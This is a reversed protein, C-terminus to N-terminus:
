RAIGAAKELEESLKKIEEAITRAKEALEQMWRPAVGMFLKNLKEYVKQYVKDLNEGTAKEGTEVVVFGDAYAEKKASETFLPAVIVRVHPIFPLQLIRGFEERIVGVEVPRDWNKCSAYIAFRMDGVAKEAWVDVEVETGARSVIRHDVKVSFGLSELVSAVVDELPDRAGFRKIVQVPKPTVRSVEMSATPTTLTLLPELEKPAPGIVGLAFYNRLINLLEYHDERKYTNPAVIIKGKELFLWLYGRSAHYQLERSQLITQMPIGQIIVAKIAGKFDELLYSDKPWPHIYIHIPRSTAKTFICHDSACEISYGERKFVDIIVAKVESLAKEYLEKIAEKVYDYAFPNVFCDSIVGEVRVNCLQERSLGTFQSILELNEGYPHNLGHEVLALKYLEGKQYLDELVSRVTFRDPIKIYKHVDLALQQVYPVAFRYIELEYYRHRQSSWSREFGLLYKYFYIRINGIKVGLISSILPSFYEHDKSSVSIGETRYSPYSISIGPYSKKKKRYIDIIACAVSLIKRDEEPMSSIRKEIEGVIVRAIEDRLIYEQLYDRLFTEGGEIVLKTWLDVNKFMATLESYVREAIDRGFAPELTKVTNIYRDEDSSHLFPYLAVTYAVGKRVLNDILAEVDKVNISSSM